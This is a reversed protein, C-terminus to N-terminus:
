GPRVDVCLVYRRDASADRLGTSITRCLHGSALSVYPDTTYKQLEVDVLLYFYEKFSHDTGKSAPRFMPGGSRRPMTANCITETVQVGSEDLVYLCDVKPDDDIVRSLIADFQEAEASALERLIRALIENFGRYARKRENIEGVMHTKFARALSEVCTAARVM